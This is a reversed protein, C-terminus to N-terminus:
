QTMEERMERLYPRIFELRMLPDDLELCYQKSQMDLPLLEAFRYGVWSADDFRQEILAYYDGLDDFAARLLDALLSYDAPVPVEPEPPLVEVDGINLGDEQQKIALLRFRDGGIATIGLLGDAGKDWDRITALTGTAQTRVEAAVESGQMLLVVGFPTDEKVCRSVMELYRPEFIRLPLPGGPYLVTQLPFLPISQKSM